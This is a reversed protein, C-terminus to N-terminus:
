LDERAPSPALQAIASRVFDHTTDPTGALHEQLNPIGEANDLISSEPLVEAFEMGLAIAIVVFLHLAVRQRGAELNAISSRTFGIRQGLMAQSLGVATRAARIRAGIAVYFEDIRADDLEPM